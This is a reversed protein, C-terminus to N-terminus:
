WNEMDMEEMEDKSVSTDTEIGREQKIEQVLSTLDRVNDVLSPLVQQFAKELGGIRSEYDDIHQEIEDMKEIFQQQDEDDRVELDHVRQELDELEEEIADLEEYVNEFETKVRQFNEAVITEILEEVAPDVEGGDDVQQQDNQAQIQQQTQQQQQPQQRQQGAQGQQQFGQNQQFGQQQQNQQQRQDDNGQNYGQDMPSVAENEQDSSYQTLPEPGGQDRGGTASDTVANNMARQIEQKSYQGQLEQMIDEDSYGQQSMNKVTRELSGGSLASNSGSRNSRGSQQQQNTAASSDSDDDDKMRGFLKFEM